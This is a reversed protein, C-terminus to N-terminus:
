SCFLVIDRDRPIEHSREALDEPSMRLAGPISDEPDADTRHRLDVIMVDQGAELMRYLEEASIRALSLKRLFRRRHIYKGVIWAACALVLLLVISSGMRLAYAAVIELQDAFLYGLGLYAGLWVIAGVSDFLVFQPWSARSSGAIPAAVANLGPIFKSVLLSRLGYKVFANETQRVCSDPELSVRCIFRLIRSGSARGLQFWLNDAILCACLGCLIAVFLNLKGARALAGYLLLFPVSPLPLAGQEALISLFLVSYGHRILFELSNPLNGTV